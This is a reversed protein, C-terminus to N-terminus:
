IRPPNAIMEGAFPQLEIKGAKMMEILTPNSLLLRGFFVMDFEKDIIATEALDLSYAGGGILMGNYHSRIFTSPKVNLYGKEDFDNDSSLHVYALSLKNLEHLLCIFVQEDEPKNDLAEMAHPTIPSIRIAVKNADGIAQTVDELVELVFRCMNAPTGGYEDSRFNTSHHLFSDLLYGNSAHLEIGDFGAEMANTAAQKFQARVEKFDAATMATATEHPIRLRSVLAKHPKVASPAIPPRGNRFHSHSFMGAHWLQSFILGNKAHVSDTVKRWAEVQEAGYIGPTNPYANAEASICTAETVMLGTTARDEYFHQINETPVHGDTATCRTMPALVLRNKYTLGGHSFPSLLGKYM